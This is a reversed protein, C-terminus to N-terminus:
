NKKNAKFYSFLGASAAVLGNTVFSLKLPSTKIHKGIFATIRDLVIGFGFWSLATTLGEHMPTNTKKRVVFPRPRKLGEMTNKSRKDQTTQYINPTKSSGFTIPYIM